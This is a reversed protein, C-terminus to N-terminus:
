SPVASLRMRGTQICPGRMEAATQEQRDQEATDM